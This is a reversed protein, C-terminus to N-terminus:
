EDAAVEPAKDENKSEVATKQGASDSEQRESAEGYKDQIYDDVYQYDSPDDIESVMDSLTEDDLDDASVKGEDFEFESDQISLARMNKLRAYMQAISVHDETHCLDPLDNYVGADPVYNDPTKYPSVEGTYSNVYMKTVPHFEKANALAKEFETQVQKDQESLEIKEIDM